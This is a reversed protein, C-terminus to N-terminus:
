QNSAHVKLMKTSTQKNKAYTDATSTPM